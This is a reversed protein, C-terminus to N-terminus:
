GGSISSFMKVIDGNQLQRSTDMEQVSNVTIVVKRTIGLENLLDQLSSGSKLQLVAQGKSGPPLKDRLISFLQVHIEL